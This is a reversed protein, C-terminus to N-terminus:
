IILIIIVKIKNVRVPLNTLPIEATWRTPEEPLPKILKASGKQTVAGGPVDDGTIEYTVGNVAVGTDIAVTVFQPTDTKQAIYPLYVIHGSVYIADNINEFNVSLSPERFVTFKSVLPKETEVPTVTFDVPNSGEEYDKRIFAAFETDLEGQYMAVAYVDFSDLWIVFPGKPSPMKGKEDEEIEPINKIAYATATKNGGSSEAIIEVVYVGYEFTSADISLKFSGDKAVEVPTLEESVEGLVASSVVGKQINAYVPLIRYGL